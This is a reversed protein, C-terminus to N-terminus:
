TTRSVEASALGLCTQLHDLAIQVGAEGMDATAQPATETFWPTGDAVRTMDVTEPALALMLATEGM